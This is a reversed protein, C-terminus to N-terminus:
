KLCIAFGEKSQRFLIKAGVLFLGFPFQSRAFLRDLVQNEKLTKEIIEEIDKVKVSIYLIGQPHIVVLTGKECFGHCGTLKMTVGMKDALGKDELQSRIAEMVKNSGLALCGTGGCVAIYPRNPDLGATLRERHSELDKHTSIRTM